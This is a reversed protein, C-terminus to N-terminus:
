TLCFKWKQKLLTLMHGRDTRNNGRSHNISEIQVRKKLSSKYLGKGNLVLPSLFLLTASCDIVYLRGNNDVWGKLLFSNKGKIELLLSLAPFQIRIRELFNFPNKIKKTSLEFSLISCSFVMNFFPKFIKMEM